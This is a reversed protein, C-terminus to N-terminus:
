GDGLPLRLLLVGTEWCCQHHLSRHHKRAQLFIKCCWMYMQLVVYVLDTYGSQSAGPWAFGGTM